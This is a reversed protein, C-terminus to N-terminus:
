AKQQVLLGKMKDIAKAIGLMEESPFQRIVDKTALDIVKVITKGTDDDLNFQISNNIPKLFDNVQKVADELEQRTAEAKQTQSAAQETQVTSVGSAQAARAQRVETAPAEAAVPRPTAGPLNNNISSINM